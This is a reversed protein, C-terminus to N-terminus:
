SGTVVSFPSLKMAAGMGTACDVYFQHDWMVVGFLLQM